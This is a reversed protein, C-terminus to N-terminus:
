KSQIHIIYRYQQTEVSLSVYLCLRQTYFHCRTSTNTQNKKKKEEMIVSRWFIKIHITYM